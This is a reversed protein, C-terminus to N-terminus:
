RSGLRALKYGEQGDRQQTSNENQKIESEKKEKKTKRRTFLGSGVKQYLSIETTRAQNESM